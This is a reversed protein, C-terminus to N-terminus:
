KRKNLNIKFWIAGTGVKNFPDYAISYPHDNKTQYMLAGALGFYHMGASLKAGVFVKGRAPAEYTETIITNITKYYIEGTLITKKLENKFVAAQLSLKATSDDILAVDYTRYKFYDAMIAATDIITNVPISDHVLVPVPNYVVVKVPVTDYVTDHVVTITPVPIEPCPRNGCERLLVIIGLLIIITIFLIKSKM